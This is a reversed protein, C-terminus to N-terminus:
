LDVCVISIRQILRRIDRQEAVPTKDKLSTHLKGDLALVDYAWSSFFTGHFIIYGLHVLDVNGRSVKYGQIILPM